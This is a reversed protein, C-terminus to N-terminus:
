KGHSMRLITGDKRSIQIEAVGGKGTRNFTGVVTWVDDKLSAIFPAQSRITDEGYVPALVAVAINVATISDPVFGQLPVYSHKSMSEVQAIATNSIAFIILTAIVLKM